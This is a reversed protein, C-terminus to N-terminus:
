PRDARAAIGCAVDVEHAPGPAPREIWQEVLRARGIRAGDDVGAPRELPELIEGHDRARAGFQHLLDLLLEGVDEALDAARLSSQRRMGEEGSGVDAKEATMM